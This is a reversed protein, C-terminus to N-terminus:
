AAEPDLFHAIVDDTFRRGLDTLAFGNEQREILTKTELDDLQSTLMEPALHTHQSFEAYSVPQMLRLRNLMYETIRAEPRTITQTSAVTNENSLYQKPHKYRWHRYIQKQDDTWKSHAGAGLGLYDKYHWYTLNHQCQQTQDTAYASIEYACLGQQQLLAKGAQQIDHMTDHEPQVPPRHAFATNPEITLQYWSLHKPSFALAQKLDSLADSVTQHPLAFMLDLNFRDFKARQIMNIARRADDSSHIRGLRKLQTDDFSQVGLSLRNVGAQRYDHFRAQESAGPNAELTVEVPKTVNMDRYILDIMQEIIGAPVLSPTGGGFFISVLRRKHWIHRAQQWDRKLQNLYDGFPLAGKVRHSNFDCYPCKEVCWPFHIYISIDASHM